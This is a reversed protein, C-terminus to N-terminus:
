PTPDLVDENQLPTRIDMALIQGLKDGDENPSGVHSFYLIGTVVGYSTPYSIFDALREDPNCDFSDESSSGDNFDTIEDVLDADGLDVIWSDLGFTDNFHLANFFSMGANSGFALLERSAVGGPSAGNYDHNYVIYAAPEEWYGWNNYPSPSSNAPYDYGSANYDTVSAIGSDDVEWEAVDMFPFTLNSASTPASGSRVTRLVDTAIALRENDFSFGWPEYWNGIQPDGGGYTAGKWTQYGSPILDTPGKKGRYNVLVPLTGPIDSGYKMAIATPTTTLTIEATGLLQVGGGPYWDTDSCSVKANLGVRAGWAMQANGASEGDAIVSRAVTPRMAGSTPPAVGEESCHFLSYPYNTDSSAYQNGTSCADERADYPIMSVDDFQTWGLQFDTLQVWIKGFADEIEDGVYVAWIDTFMGVEGNGIPHIGAHVPMEVTTIIWDGLPHWAATDKNQAAFLTSIDPHESISGATLTGSPTAKLLIVTAAGSSTDHVLDTCGVCEADTGDYDSVYLVTTAAPSCEPGLGGTVSCSPTVSLSGSSCTGAGYSADYVYGSLENESQTGSSLCELGVYADRRFALGEIDKRFTEFVLRGTQDNYRAAKGNWIGMTGENWGAPENVGDGIIVTPSYPPAAAVDGACSIGVALAAGAAGFCAITRPRIM